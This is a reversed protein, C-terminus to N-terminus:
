YYGDVDSYGYGMWKLFDWIVWIAREKDWVMGLTLFVGAQVNYGLSM